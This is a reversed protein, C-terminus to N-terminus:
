EPNCKSINELISEFIPALESWKLPGGRQGLGAAKRCAIRADLLQLSIHPCLNCLAQVMSNVGEIEQSDGKWRTSILRWMAHLQPSIRGRRRAGRRLAKRFHFVLKKATPHLSGTTWTESSWRPTPKSSTSAALAKAADDGATRRPIAADADAAVILDQCLLAREECKDDANGYGLWPLRCPLTELRHTVRRDFNGIMGTAMKFIADWLRSAAGRKATESFADGLIDAWM